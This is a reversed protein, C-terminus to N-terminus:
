GRSAGSIGRGARGSPDFTRCRSNCRRGHEAAIESKRRRSVAEAQVKFEVEIGPQSLGTPAARPSVKPKRRRDIGRARGASRVKWEEYGCRWRWRESVDNVQTKSMREPQRGILRRSEGKILRGTRGDPTEEAQAKSRGNPAKLELRRSASKVRDEPQRGVKYKQSEGSIQDEPGAKSQMILWYRTAM